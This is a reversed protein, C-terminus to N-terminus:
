ISAPVSDSALLDESTPWRVGVFFIYISATVLSVVPEWDAISNSTCTTTEAGSSSSSSTTVVQLSWGTPAGDNEYQRIVAGDETTVICVPDLHMTLAVLPVISALALLPRKWTTGRPAMAPRPRRQGALYWLVPPIFMLLGVVAAILLAGQILAAMSALTLLSPRRDLSLMALSPPIAFTSLFALATLVNADGSIFSIAAFTLAVAYGIAIGAVTLRRSTRIEKYVSM